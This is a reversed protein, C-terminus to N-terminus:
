KLWATLYATSTHDLTVIGLELIFVSHQLLM